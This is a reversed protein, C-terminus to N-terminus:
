QDTSFFTNRIVSTPRILPHKGHQQSKPLSSSSIKPCMALLSGASILVVTYNYLTVQYLETALRSLQSHLRPLPDEERVIDNCHAYKDIIIPTMNIKPIIALRNNTYLKYYASASNQNVKKILIM